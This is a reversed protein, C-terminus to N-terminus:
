RAGSAPTASVPAASPTAEVRYYQAVREKVKVWIQEWEAPPVDRHQPCSAAIQPACRGLARVWRTDYATGIREGNALELGQRVLQAAREPQERLFARSKSAQEPGVLTLPLRLFGEIEILHAEGLASGFREIDYLGLAAQAAILPLLKEVGAQPVFVAGIYDMAELPTLSFPRMEFARVLREFDRRALADNHQLQQITQLFHQRRSEWEERAVASAASAPASAQPTPTQALVSSSCISATLSALLLIPLPRHM